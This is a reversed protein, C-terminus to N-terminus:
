SPLVICDLAGVCVELEDSSESPLDSMLGLANMQRNVDANLGSM